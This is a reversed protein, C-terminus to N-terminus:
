NLKPKARDPPNQIRAYVPINISPKEKSDTRITILDRYNGARHLTNEVVLEYGATKADDGLPKVDYRLNEGQQAKVEKIVLPHGPTPVIKIKQVLPQDVLGIFRVYTPSVTMYALVRGVVELRMQARYRDNTYVTFGKHLKEGGRNKTSVVM